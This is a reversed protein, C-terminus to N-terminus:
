YVTKWNRKRKKKVRTWTLQRTMNEPRLWPKKRPVRKAKRYAKLINRVTNLGLKKSYKSLTTLIKLSCRPNAIAYRVLARDERNNTRKPGGPRPKSAFDLVSQKKLRNILSSVTSRPERFHKAIATINHGCEYLEWIHARKTPSLEKRSTKRALGM